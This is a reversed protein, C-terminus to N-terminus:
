EAIQRLYHDAFDTEILIWLPDHDSMQWTRWKRYLDEPTKAKFKKNKEPDYAPLRERYIDFDEDRFVNEYMNLIGGGTVSFRKDKVRVAIQDYFHHGPPRVNEGSIAPPVVFGESQLAVMTEHKPSVVNFDGLLIYNEVNGLEDREAKSESDQRKAFFRVLQQIEAIRQKLKEGSEAGYYIHVTCLSFKFWGSQFAVAFPSRSFQQRVEMFGANTAEEVNSM